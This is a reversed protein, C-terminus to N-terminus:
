EITSNNKENQVKLLMEDIENIASQCHTGITSSPANKIRYKIVNLRQTVEDFVPSSSTSDIHNLVVSNFTM